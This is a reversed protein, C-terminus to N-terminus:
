QGDGRFACKPSRVASDLTAHLRSVPEPTITRLSGAHLAFSMREEEIALTVACGCASGVGALASNTREEALRQVRRREAEIPMTLMDLFGCLEQSSPDFQGVIARCNFVEPPLQGQHDRRVTNSLTATCRAEWGDMEITRKAVLPGTVFLSLLVYVIVGIVAGGGLPLGHTDFPM